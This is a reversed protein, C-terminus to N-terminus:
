DAKAMKINNMPEYIKGESLLNLILEQDRVSLLGSSIKIGSESIRRKLTRTSIGLENAIEQRTKLKSM